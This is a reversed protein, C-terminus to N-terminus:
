SNGEKSARKPKETDALFERALAEGAETLGVVYQGGVKFRMVLGAKEWRRLIRGRSPAASIKGPERIGKLMKLLMEKEVPNYSAFAATEADRLPDFDDSDGGFPDYGYM